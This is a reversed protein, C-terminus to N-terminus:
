SDGGQKRRRRLLDQHEAILVLVTVGGALLGGPLGPFTGLITLIVLGAIVGTITWYRRRIFRSM